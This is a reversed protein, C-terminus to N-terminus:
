IHILSLMDLGDRITGLLPPTLDILIGDSILVDSRNGAHDIARVSVYYTAGDNLHTSDGLMNLTYSNITSYWDVTNSDGRSTGLAVEYYSVESGPSIDIGQWSSSLVSDINQIDIDSSISGENVYYIEPAEMDITFGDSTVTNSVNSVSDIARISVFYTSDGEFSISVTAM